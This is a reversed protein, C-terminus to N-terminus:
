ESVGESLREQTKIFSSIEKLVTQAQKIRQHAERMKQTAIKMLESKDGESTQLTATVEDHLKKAADIYENFATIKPELVAVDKGEQTYRELTHSLQDQIKEIKKIIGGFKSNATILAKEKIGSKSQQILEKTQKAATKIQEPTTFGISQQDRLITAQSLKTELEQLFSNKQEDSLDKSKQLNDRTRELLKHTHEITHSILQTARNKADKRAKKCEFSEIGKCTDARQKLVDFGKTTEKLQERIDKLEDKSSKEAERAQKRVTKARELLEKKKAVREDITQRISKATDDRVIKDGSLETDTQESASEMLDDPEHEHAFAYPLMSIIMVGILALTVYNKTNM